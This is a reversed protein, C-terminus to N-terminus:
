WNGLLEIELELNVGFKESVTQRALQILAYFDAARAQGGNIFFNAHLESIEVDGKRAGKLGAAEILRGAYDSPPNKFISGLGAGPPQTRRRYEVFEDLKAQVAQPISNELRLLASLVVVGGPRGKLISSRYAYGFRDVSWEDRQPVVTQGSGVPHLINALILNGAIDGGYAGANGIVAGGVTGPIGGAWELGALGYQAAQRALLGFNAGSEAWVTPPNAQEDFNVQRARNIIVLGRIGADSILINTGGGLIVFPTQHKWCLGVVEVLEQVSNAEILAEAPGGLRAATYRALPAELQVRDNFVERIPRLNITQLGPSVM